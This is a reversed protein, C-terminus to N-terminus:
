LNGSLTQMLFCGSVVALLQSLRMVACCYCWKRSMVAVVAICSVAAAAAAAAASVVM